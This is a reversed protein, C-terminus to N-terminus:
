GERILLLYRQEVESTWIALLVECVEHVAESRGHRACECRRRSTLSRLDVGVFGSRECIRGEPIRELIAHSMNDHDVSLGVELISRITLKRIHGEDYSNYEGSVSGPPEAPRLPPGNPVAFWCSSKRAASRADTSRV